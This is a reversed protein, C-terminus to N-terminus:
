KWFYAPNPKFFDSAFSSQQAFQTQPGTSPFNGYMVGSGYPNPVSNYRTPMMPGASFGSSVYTPQPPVVDIQSRIQPRPPYYIERTQVVPAPAQVVPAAVAGGSIMDIEEPLYIGLSHMCCCLFLTVAGTMLFMIGGLIAIALPIAFKAQYPNTPPMITGPMLSSGLMYFTWASTSGRWLEISSLVIMAPAFVIASLFILLAFVRTWRGPDASLCMSFLGALFIPVSAWIGSAVWTWIYPEGTMSCYMPAGTTWPTCYAEKTLVVDAIGLALTAAALLSLIAGFIKFARANFFTPQMTSVPLAPEQYAVTTRGVPMPDYRGYYNDGM